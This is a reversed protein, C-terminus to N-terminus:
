FPLDDDEKNNKEPDQNFEEDEMRKECMTIYESSTKIKDQIFEPLSKFLNEDFNDYDLVHPENIPDPMEQGKMLPSISAVEEFTKTGDKSKKHVINIMCPVGILKTVDFARAEDETFDKGRWSKLDKRLTSKEHMSLTYEKSLVIPQEGQDENFVHLDNPFEWGIRCKNLTKTTGQINEENTGIHIMQYCRALHVGETLFERQRTPTSTAIIAM